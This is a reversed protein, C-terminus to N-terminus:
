AEAILRSDFVSLVYTSRDENAKRFDTYVLTSV